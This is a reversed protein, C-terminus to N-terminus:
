KGKRFYLVTPGDEIFRNSVPLAFGAGDHHELDHVTVGRLSPSMLRCFTYSFNAASGNYKAACLHRVNAADPRQIVLDSRLVASALFIFLRLKRDRKKDHSSNVANLAQHMVSEIVM